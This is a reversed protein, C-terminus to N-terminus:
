WELGMFRREAAYAARSWSNGSGVAGVWGADMQKIREPEPEKPFLAEAVVRVEGSLLEDWSEAPRVTRRYQYLAEAARELPTMPNVKEIETM